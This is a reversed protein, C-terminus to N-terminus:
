YIMRRKKKGDYDHFIATVFPVSLQLVGKTDMTHKRAVFDACVLHLVEEKEFISKLDLEKLWAAWKKTVKWDDVLKSEVFRLINNKVSYLKSPMKVNGYASANNIGMKPFDNLSVHKKDITIDLNLVNDHKQANSVEDENDDDADDTSQKSSANSAGNYLTEKGNDSKNDDKSGGGDEVESMMCLYPSAPAEMETGRQPHSTTVVSQPLAISNSNSADLNEPEPQQRVLTIERPMHSWDNERNLSGIEMNKSKSCADDLKSLTSYLSSLSARRKDPSVRRDISRSFTSRLLWEAQESPHELSPSSQERSLPDHIIAMLENPPLTKWEARRKKIVRSWADMENQPISEPANGSM